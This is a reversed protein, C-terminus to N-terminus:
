LSTLNHPMESLLPMTWTTSLGHICIASAPLTKMSRGYAIKSPLFRGDLMLRSGDRFNALRVETYFASMGDGVAPAGINAGSDKVSSMEYSRDDQQAYPNPRRNQYGGGSAPTPPSDSHCCAFNLTQWGGVSAVNLMSAPITVEEVRSSRRCSYSDFWSIFTSLNLM